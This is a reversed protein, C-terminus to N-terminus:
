WPYCWCIKFPRAMTTHIHNVSISKGVYGHAKTILKMLIFTLACFFVKMVAVLIDSWISHVEMFVLLYMTTM